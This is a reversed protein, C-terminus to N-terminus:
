ISCAVILFSFTIKRQGVCLTHARSFESIVTAFSLSGFKGLLTRVFVVGQVAFGSRADGAAGIEKGRLASKILYLRTVKRSQRSTSGVRAGFEVKVSAARRALEGFRGPLFGIAWSWCVTCVTGFWFTVVLTTQSAFNREGLTGIFL